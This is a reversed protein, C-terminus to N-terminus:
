NSASVNCCHQSITETSSFQCGEPSESLAVEPEGIQKRIHDQLGAGLVDWKRERACESVCECVCVCVCM